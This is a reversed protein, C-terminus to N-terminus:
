SLTYEEPSIHETTTKIKNALKIYRNIEKSFAQEDIDTIGVINKQELYLSIKVQSLGLYTHLYNIEVLLYLKQTRTFKSDDKIVAKLRNAAFINDIINYYVKKSTASPDVMIQITDELIEEPSDEKFVKVDVTHYDTRIIRRAMSLAIEFKLKGNILNKLMRKLKNHIEQLEENTRM